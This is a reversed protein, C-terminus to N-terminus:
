PTESAIERPVEVGTVVGTVARFEDPADRPRDILVFARWGYAAGLAQDADDFTVLVEWVGSPTVVGPEAEPQYSAIEEVADAMRITTITGPQMTARHTWVAVRWELSVRLVPRLDPM